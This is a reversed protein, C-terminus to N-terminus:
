AVPERVKSPEAGRDWRLREPM